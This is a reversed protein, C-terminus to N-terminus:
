SSARQSESILYARTADLVNVRLTKLSDCPFLKESRRVYMCMRPGELSLWGPLGGKEAPM